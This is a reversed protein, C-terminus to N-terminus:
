KVASRSRRARRQHLFVKEELRLLRTGFPQQQVDQRSWDRLLKATPGGRNRLTMRIHRDQEGVDDPECWQAFLEARSRQDVEEVLHEHNEVIQHLNGAQLLDLRDAVRVHRDTPERRGTRIVHRGRQVQRDRHTVRDRLDRM